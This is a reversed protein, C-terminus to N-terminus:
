FSPLASRMNQLQPCLGFSHKQDRISVIASDCCLGLFGLNQSLVKGQLTLNQLLFLVEGQCDALNMDHFSLRKLASNYEPCSVSAHVKAQKSVLTTTRGDGGRGAKARGKLTQLVLGFDQPSAFTASDLSLQQLSGSAKLVSCLLPAPQAGRPFGM